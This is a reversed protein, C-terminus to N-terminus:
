SKLCYMTDLKKGINEKDMKSMNEIYGYFYFCEYNCEPSYESCSTKLYSKKVEYKSIESVMPLHKSLTQPLQAQHTLGTWCGVIRSFFKEDIM